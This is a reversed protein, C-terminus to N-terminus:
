FEVGTLKDLEEQSMGPPPKSFFGKIYPNMSKRGYRLEFPAYGTSRHVATRYALAYTMIQNWEGEFNRIYHSIIERISGHVREM